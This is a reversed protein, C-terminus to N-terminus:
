IIRKKLKESTLESISELINKVLNLDYIKEISFLKEISESKNYRSLIYLHAQEFEVLLNEPINIKCELLTKIDDNVGFKSLFMLASSMSIFSTGKSLWLKVIGINNYNRYCSAIETLELIKFSGKVITTDNDLTLELLDNTKNLSSFWRWIPFTDTEFNSIGLKFLQLSEDPYPNVLNFSLLNADHAGIKLSDNQSFRKSFLALRIRAVETPSYNSEGNYISQVTTNLSTRDFEPTINDEINKNHSVQEKNNLNEKPKIKKLSYDLLNRHLYREFDQPEAYNGFLVEKNEIIKQKFTIVKRLQEGPDVLLSEEIDRFFISMQMKSSNCRELAREFEEEFGSTYIGNNAPTTGWRKWLIGVFLECDDLERNIIEQPRGNSPLTDEWGYIRISINMNSILTKNLDEEVRKALRREEAVDGPSALFVKILKFTNNM